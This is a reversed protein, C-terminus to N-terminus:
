FPVFNAQSMSVLASIGVVLKFVASLTCLACFFAEPRAYCRHDICYEDTEDYVAGTM